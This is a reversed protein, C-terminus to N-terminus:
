KLNVYDNISVVQATEHQRSDFCECPITCAQIFIFGKAVGNERLASM